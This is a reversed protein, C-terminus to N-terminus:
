LEKNARKINEIQNILAQNQTCLDLIEKDKEMIYIDLNKSKQNDIEQKIKNMIKNDKENNIVKSM